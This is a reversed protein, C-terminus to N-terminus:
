IAFNKKNQYDMSESMDLMFIIDINNNKKFIEILKEVRKKEEILEQEQFIKKLYKLCKINTKPDTIENM